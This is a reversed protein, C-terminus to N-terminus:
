TEPSSANSCLLKQFCIIKATWHNYNVSSCKHLAQSTSPLLILLRALWHVNSLMFVLYLCLMPGKMLHDTHTLRAVPFFFQYSVITWVYQVVTEGFASPFAGRYVPTELQKILSLSLIKICGMLCNTPSNRGTSTMSSHIPQTLNGTQLIHKKKLFFCNGLSFHYKREIWALFSDTSSTFSLVQTLSTLLM